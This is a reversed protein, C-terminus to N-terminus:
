GRRYYSDPITCEEFDLMAHNRVIEVLRRRVDEYRGRPFPVYEGESTQSEVELQVHWYNMMTPVHIVVLRGAVEKAKAAVEDCVENIIKYLKSESPKTYRRPHPFDCEHLQRAYYYFMPRDELRECMCVYKDADVAEGNWVSHADGKQSWGAHYAQFFAGMLNMSMQAINKFAHSTIKSADAIGDEFALFEPCDSRRQVIIEELDRVLRDIDIRNAYDISPLIELPYTACCDTM